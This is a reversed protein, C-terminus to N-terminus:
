SPTAAALPGPKGAEKSQAPLPTRIGVALSWTVRSIKTRLPHAPDADVEAALTCGLEQAKGAFWSPRLIAAMAVLWDVEALLGLALPVRLRQAGRIGLGARAPRYAKAASVAASFWVLFPLLRAILRASMPRFDLSLLDRRVLEALLAHRVTLRDWTSSWRSYPNPARCVMRPDYRIEVGDSAALTALALTGGWERFGNGFDYRVLVERRAAFNNEPLHRVRSQLDEMAGWDRISGAKTLAGEGAYATRGVVIQARPDAFGERVAALWDDSYSCEADTFAIVEGGAEELGRRRLAYSDTESVSLTRLNPLGSTVPAAGSATAVLFEVGPNKEAIEGIRWSVAPAEAASSALSERAIIVVTIAPATSLREAEKFPASTPPTARVGQKRVLKKSYRHGKWTVQGTSTRLAAESLLLITAVDSLPKTLFAWGPASMRALVRQYAYWRLLLALAATGGLA